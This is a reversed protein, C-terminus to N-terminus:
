HRLGEPISIEEVKKMLATIVYVPSEAQGGVDGTVYLDDADTKHLSDQGPAGGGGARGTGIFHCKGDPRRGQTSGSWTSREARDLRLFIPVDEKETPDHLLGAGMGQLAIQLTKVVEEVAVGHLAAKEQDVEVQFKTQDDEVYTDVDVVGETSAFVDAIQRAVAMQRTYDPGYIEAM